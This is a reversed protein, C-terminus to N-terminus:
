HRAPVLRRWGIVVATLSFVTGCLLLLILVIDWVPRHQFLLAFDLSHLGSYLWRAWRDTATLRQVVAGTTLDIHYWSHETDEFRVELVPLPRYRNHHSYYWSDYHTIVRQAAMRATPQLAQLQSTILAQLALPNTKGNALRISKETSSRSLVLYPTTGIRRWQVEKIGDGAAQLAAATAPLDAFGELPGGQYRALQEDVSTANDFVGWPYMSMLGSFIWTAIFVVCGLGLLHHWRQWGRYPTLQADRYRRRVRLRWWGVVTGSVVSFVGALSLYTLVEAWLTAHQRFQWPYIWHITSGLWNWFRETRTTDRVVRGRTGSVYLVTGAADDLAVRHLPREADLVSSVTWQDIALEGDHRPQASGAFHSHRAAALAQEATVATLLSGDDAFVTTTARLTDVFEYAPRGMVMSLTLASVNDIGARKAAEDASVRLATADLAQMQWLREDETLEPYEVYMMIVGSVFLLAFWLCLGVGLWRHFLYLFRKAKKLM